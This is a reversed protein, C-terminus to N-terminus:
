LREDIIDKFGNLIFIKYKIYLNVIALQIRPNLILGRRNTRGQIKGKKKEGYKEDFIDGCSHLVPLEYKTYLNVIFLQITPYFVLRRNTRGQIYESKKKEMCKTSYNKTM